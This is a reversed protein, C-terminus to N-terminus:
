LPVYMLVTAAVDTGEVLVRLISTDLCGDPLDMVNDAFFDIVYGVVLIGIVGYLFADNRREKWKQKKKKSTVQSMMILAVITGIAGVIPGVQFAAELLPELVENVLDADCIGDNAQSQSISLLGVVGAVVSAAVIEQTYNTVKDILSKDNSM